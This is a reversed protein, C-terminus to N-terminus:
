QHVGGPRHVRGLVTAQALELPGRRRRVALPAQALAMASYLLGGPKDCGSLPAPQNLSSGAQLQARGGQRDSRWTVTESDHAVPVRCVLSSGSGPPSRIPAWSARCRGPSHKSRNRRHAAAPEVVEAWAAVAVAQAPLVQLVGRSIRCRPARRSSTGDGRSAVGEADRAAQGAALTVSDPGSPNTSSLPSSGRVEEM